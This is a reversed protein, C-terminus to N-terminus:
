PLIVQNISPSFSHKLRYVVQLMQLPRPTPEVKLIRKDMQQGLTVKVIALQKRPIQQNISPLFSHKLQYVVQLMQSPRRTPEVKLIRKDMQQGLTVAVIALQKRPIQQNISPLFSHKLPYVVQLMQLPQRILEVKLIRKDMQLGVTIEM